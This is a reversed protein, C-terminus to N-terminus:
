PHLLIDLTLEELSAMVRDAQSFDQNLTYRNPIAICSMGAARAANVGHATDELVVFSEARITTQELVKLFIAPNPKGQQVQDGSAIISFTALLGLRKLVIDIDQRISSSALALILGNERCMQLVNFLGPMPRLDTLIIQHYAIIKRQELTEPTEKFGYRKKLLSFNEISKRGVMGSFDDENVTIGLPELAKNVAIYQLPESDIMLGDMDFVVGSIGISNKKKM